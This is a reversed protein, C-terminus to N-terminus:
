SRFLIELEPARHRERPAKLLSVSVADINRRNLGQVLLCRSIVSVTIRPDEEFSGLQRICSRLCSDDNIENMRIGGDDGRDLIRM